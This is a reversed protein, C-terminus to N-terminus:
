EGGTEPEDPTQEQLLKQIDAELEPYAGFRCAKLLGRKDVLIYSPTGQLGFCEFTDAQYELAQFYDQLQERIRQQERRAKDQFDPLRLRIFADIDNEINAGLRKNLKDMAVPFNIRYRLRRNQLKGKLSLLRLTEGVVEGKEVLRILNELNNKDFDEFATAVGLVTLGQGAYRQQLEIAQPLSYLFCGPCNVQFVVVLVVRGSLQDFNTPTGQLWDSVSLLPAKQGIVAKQM